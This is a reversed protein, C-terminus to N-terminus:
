KQYSECGKMFMSIFAGNDRFYSFPKECEHKQLSDKESIFHTMSAQLHTLTCILILISDAKSDEISICMSDDKLLNILKTINRYLHCGSIATALSKMINCM